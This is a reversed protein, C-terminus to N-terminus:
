MPLISSWAKLAVKFAKFFPWHMAIRSEFDLFAMVSRKKGIVKRKGRKRFIQLVSALPSYYMKTAWSTAEVKPKGKIPFTDV